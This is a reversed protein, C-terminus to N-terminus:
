ARLNYTFEVPIQELEYCGSSKVDQFQWVLRGTSAYRSWGPYDEPQADNGSRYKVEIFILGGEGLDVIVDPESFSNPDEQLKACLEKLQRRIAAGRTASGIPAGWLLLTPAKTPTEEAILAASRLASLLQGSGFLYTFVVWTVADESTSFGFRIRKSERNRVNPAQALCESAGERSEIPISELPDRYIYTIDRAHTANSAAIGCLECRRLCEDFHTAVPVRDICEVAAISKECSPCILSPLQPVNEERIDRDNSSKM